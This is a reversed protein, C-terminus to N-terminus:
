MIENAKKEPVSELRMPILKASTLRMPILKANSQDVGKPTNDM